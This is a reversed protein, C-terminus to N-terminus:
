KVPADGTHNKTENLKRMAEDIQRQIEGSRIKATAEFAQRQADEMEKKFEPSNIKATAEAV